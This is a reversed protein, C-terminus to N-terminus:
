WKSKPELVIITATLTTNLILVTITVGSTAKEAKLKAYTQDKPYEVRLGGTAAPNSSFSPSLCGQKLYRSQHTFAKSELLM